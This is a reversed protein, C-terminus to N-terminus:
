LVLEVIDDQKLLFANADDLDLHLEFFAEDSVKYYALIVGPKESHIKVIAEQHDKINLEEAQKKDIHIHRNAIIVPIDIEGIPGIVKITDTNELSGSKRYVANVGLDYSDTKTIEVQSYSRFPGMIRVNEKIGKPGKITVVESAAFLGPQKIEKYKTLENYGFLKIFDDMTLHIHRASIGVSIQM